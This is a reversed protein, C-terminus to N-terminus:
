VLLPTYHLHLKYVLSRASRIPLLNGRRLEFCAVATADSAAAAGTATTSGTAITVDIATPADKTAAAGTAMAAGFAMTVNTM